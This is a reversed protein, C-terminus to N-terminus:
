KGKIEKYFQRKITQQHKVDWWCSLYNLQGKIVGHMEISGIVRHMEISGLCLTIFPSCQIQVFFTNHSEDKAYKLKCSM